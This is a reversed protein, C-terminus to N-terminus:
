NSSSSSVCCQDTGRTFRPYKILYAVCLDWLRGDPLCLLPGIPGFYSGFIDFEQEIDLEFDARALERILELTTPLVLCSM